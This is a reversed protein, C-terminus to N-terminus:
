SDFDSTKVANFKYNDSTVNALKGIGSWKSNEDM